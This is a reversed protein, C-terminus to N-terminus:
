CDFKGDTEVGELIAFFVKEKMVGHLFATVVDQQNLPLDFMKTIALVMRLTVYKVVPSFTETYDVVYKQKLGKAVLRM